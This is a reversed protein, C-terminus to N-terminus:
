ASTDIPLEDSSFYILQVRDGLDGTQTEANYGPDRREGSTDVGFLVGPPRLPNATRRGLPADIVFKISTIIPEDEETYIDFYWYADRTNWYFAFRYTTGDLVVELDYNPLDRRLPITVPM